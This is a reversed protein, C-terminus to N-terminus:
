VRAPPASVVAVARKRQEASALGVAVALRVVKTWAAAFAVLQGFALAQMLGIPSYPNEIAPPVISALLLGSGPVSLALWLVIVLPRVAIRGAGRLSRGVSRDAATVMLARALELWGLCIAVLAYQLLAAIDPGIVSRAFRALLAGLGMLVIVIAVGILSLRFSSWFWRRCASWFPQCPGNGARLSELIGGALLSYAAVQGLLTLPLLLGIGLALLAVGPAGEGRTAGMVIEVVVNLWGPGLLDARWPRDSALWTLGLMMTTTPVLGLLLAALYLPVALRLTILVLAGAKM